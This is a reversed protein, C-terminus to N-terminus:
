QLNTSLESQVICRGKGLLAEFEGKEPSQPPPYETSTEKFWKSAKSRLVFSFASLCTKCVSCFLTLQYWFGSNYHLFYGSLVRDFGQVQLRLQLRHRATAALNQNPHQRDPLIPRYPKSVRSDAQAPIPREGMYKWWLRRRGTHSKRSVSHWKCHCTLMIISPWIQRM